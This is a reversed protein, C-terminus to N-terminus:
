AKRYYGGRWGGAQKIPWSRAFEPVTTAIGEAEEISGWGKPVEAVFEDYTHMVIPYERRELNLLAHAQIDRAVKQTVNEACKGSYLSMRQWGMAGQKPNSNWGSYTIQWGRWEKDGLALRPQHYTIIGGGPVSCYLADGWKMYAVGTDSGDMRLVNWWRDPHQCAKVAMGELGFPECLQFNRSQGGWFYVLNPSASRWKLIAAILEEDTGKYDIDPSRLAGIWGGFGLGLEMRKGKDRLPHHQGNDKAYQILDALPVGFARSASELYMLGHGAYVDLRWQEGALAAIVVGEIATFDSSILEYGPKAIFLSRLCGAVAHMADGFFMELLVLSKSKIVELADTVAAPSWESSKDPARLKNCWPCVFRHKGHFRGCGGLVTPKGDPGFGCRFVNPGAKPLNTPQPGNGTPRGTRAGHYSYLDHLRGAVAQNRMAFVKKVSASGIAARIELARRCHPPLQGALAVEIADEDMSDLHVGQAHLWGKLQQLETPRIGGTLEQLERDYKETAQEIIAICAAVGVEDIQIGRENIIQDHQWYALEMPTLDPTKSSAEAETVIDRENYAYFRPGDVPDEEPRIRTRKDAKTPNRPIAFKKILRDGESDKPYMLNLVKGLEELKGPHANARAKAMSCRWQALPMPPWGYKKVCVHNWIKHEFGSNHAELLGGSQVHDFLAQPNPMDPRWFVRGRGDKMDYYFSTVESSEHVAYAKAGIVPLGKKGQVAGPLAGWKNTAADWVFGGESYVEFDCDPLVTAFGLGAHLQTGAPMNWVDIM